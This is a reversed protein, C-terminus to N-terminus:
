QAKRSIREARRELAEAAAAALKPRLQRLTDDFWGPSGLQSVWVGTNFVPHRWGKHNNFHRPAKAFNRLKVDRVRILAGVSPATFDIVPGIQDQIAQRMSEGGHPLGGTDLQWLAAKVAAIGPELAERLENAADTRWHTGGAEEDLARIVRRFSAEDPEVVIHDM